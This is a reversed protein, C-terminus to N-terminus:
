NELPGVGNLIYIAHENYINWVRMYTPRDCIKFLEILQDKSSQDRMSHGAIAGITDAECSKIRFFGYPLTVRKRNDKIFSIGFANYETNYVIEVTDEFTSINDSQSIKKGYIAYTNPIVPTWASAISGLGLSVSFLLAKMIKKM